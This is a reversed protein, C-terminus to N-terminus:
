QKGIRIFTTHKNSITELPNLQHVYYFAHWFESPPQSIKTTPPRHHRHHRRQTHHDFICCSIRSLLTKPRHRQFANNGAVALSGTVELILHKTNTKVRLKFVTYKSLKNTKKPTASTPLNGKNERSLECCNHKM